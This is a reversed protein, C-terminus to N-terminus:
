RPRKHPCDGAGLYKLEDANLKRWKGPELGELRLHGIGVRVLRLVPHGILAFMRRVQRNRGETLIIQAWSTPISKRVRIPVPRPAINPAPIIKAKCPKAPGDNLVVGRRLRELAGESVEGDVQAWYVRPHGFRPNCLRNKLRGDGTLLLLGESDHDLRGAPFVGEPLGFGKLGPHGDVPTFQSVVGYPKFFLVSERKPLTRIFHRHIRRKM